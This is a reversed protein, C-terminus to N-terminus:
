QHKESHHQKCLLDCKAIEVQVLGWGMRGVMRSVKATKTKPDRHHFDLGTRKQCQDCGRARKLAQYRARVNRRHNVHQRRRLAPWRRRECRVCTRLGQRKRSPTTVEGGCIKCILVRALREADTMAQRPKVGHVRRRAEMLALCQERHAWYYALARQRIKRTTKYQM